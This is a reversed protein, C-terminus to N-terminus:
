NLFELGVLTFKANVQQSWVVRCPTLIRSDGAALVDVPDGSLFHAPSKIRMGHLSLDITFAPLESKQGLQTAVVRIPISRRIRESRRASFTVGDSM